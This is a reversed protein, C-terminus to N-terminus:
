NNKFRKICILTSKKKKDSNIYQCFNLERSGFGVVGTGTEKEGRGQRNSSSEVDRGLLCLCLCSCSCSCMWM